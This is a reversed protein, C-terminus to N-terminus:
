RPRAVAPMFLGALSPLSAVHADDAVAKVSPLTVVAFQQAEHMNMRAALASLRDDSSLAAIRDDLRMTEAQLEARDHRAKAVAYSLGTLSSTLVVYGMLFLLVVVLVAFVRAVGAYRARSKMDIRRHTAGRAARANAIRKPPELRRPAIM